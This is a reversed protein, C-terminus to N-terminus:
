LVGMRRLEDVLGPSTDMTPIYEPECWMVETADDGAELSGGVVRAAFDHVVYGMVDVTAILEGVDVILGTEELVERAAAAAHTEGAEVRGGPLSWKGAAPASGRRVMLLRGGDDRIVAGACVVRDAM